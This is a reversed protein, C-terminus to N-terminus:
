TAKCSVVAQAPGQTNGSGDRSGGLDNVVVKAAERAFALADETRSPNIYIRPHTTIRVFSCLAQPSMAYAEPGNVISELWDRYREHDRSDSRFAYIFASTSVYGLELATQTVSLGGGMLRVQVSLKERRAYNLFVDQINPQASAPKSERTQPM